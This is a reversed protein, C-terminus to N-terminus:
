GIYCCLYLVHIDGSERYKYKNHKLNRRNPPATYNLRQLFLMMGHSFALHTDVCRQLAGKTQIFTKDVGKGAGVHNRDLSMEVDATRM